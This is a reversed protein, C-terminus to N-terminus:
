AGTGTTDGLIQEITEDREKRARDGAGAGFRYRYHLKIVKLHANLRDTGPLIRVLWRALTEGPHRKSLSAELGSIFKFFAPDAQRGHNHDVGTRTAKKAEAATRSGLKRLLLLILPILL